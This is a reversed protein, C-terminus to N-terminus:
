DVVVKGFCNEYSQELKEYLNGWEAIASDHMTGSANIVCAIVLGDPSFVFVHSM